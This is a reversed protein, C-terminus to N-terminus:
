WDRTFIESLVSTCCSAWKKPSARRVTYALTPDRALTAASMFRFTKKRRSPNQAHHVDSHSKVQTPGKTLKLIQRITPRIIVFHVSTGTDRNIGTSAYIIQVFYLTSNYLLLASLCFSFYASVFKNMVPQAIKLPLIFSIISFNKQINLIGGNKHFHTGFIFKRIGVNLVPKYNLFNYM